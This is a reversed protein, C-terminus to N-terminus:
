TNKAAERLFVQTVAISRNRLHSQNVEEGDVPLLVTGLAPDRKLLKKWKKRFKRTVMRKEEASLSELMTSLERGTFSPIIGSDIMNLKALIEVKRMKM